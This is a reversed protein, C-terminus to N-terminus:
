ARVSLWCFFCILHFLLSPGVLGIATQIIHSVQIKSITARTPFFFLSFGLLPPCLINPGWFPTVHLIFGWFPTFFALSRFPTIHFGSLPYSVWFGLLPHVFFGSPPSWKTHTTRSAFQLFFLVSAYFSWANFKCALSYQCFKFITLTIRVGQSTGTTAWALEGLIEL